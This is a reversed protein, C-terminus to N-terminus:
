VNPVADEDPAEISVLEALQRLKMARYVAVDEGKVTAIILPLLTGKPVSRWQDIPAGVENEIAECQIATLDLPSIPAAM